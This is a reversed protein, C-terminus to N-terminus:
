NALFLILSGNGKLTLPSIVYKGEEGATSCLANIINRWRNCGTMGRGMLSGDRVATGGGNEVLHDETPKTGETGPPCWKLAM